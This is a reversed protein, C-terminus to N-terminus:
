LYRATTAMCNIVTYKPVYYKHMTWYWTAFSGSLSMQAFGTAFSLAWMFGLVHIFVFFYAYTPPDAECNGNCLM